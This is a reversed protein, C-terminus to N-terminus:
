SFITISLLFYWNDIHHVKIVLLWVMCVSHLTVKFLSLSAKGKVIEIFESYPMKHINGLFYTQFTIRTTNTLRIIFSSM